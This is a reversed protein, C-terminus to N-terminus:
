VWLARSHILECVYRRVLVMMAPQTDTHTPNLSGAACHALRQVVVHAAISGARIAGLENGPRMNTIKELKKENNRYYNKDILTKRTDNKACYFFVDTSICGNTIEKIKQASSFFDIFLSSVLM